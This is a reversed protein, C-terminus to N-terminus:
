LEGLGELVLQVMAKLAEEEDTGECIIELVDGSKVCAGLISLVSKANGISHETEFTIRCEHRMAEKCFLGAPGVNLGTLNMLQVKQKVM